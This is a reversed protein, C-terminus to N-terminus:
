CGVPVEINDIAWGWATAAPDSQLRWRIFVLDGPSLNDHLNITRKLYMSENGPTISNGNGQLGSQFAASWSAQDRSDYGTVLPTWTCGDKSAEVLCFDFFNANPWSGTGEEVLVVEDYTIVAETPDDAVTIPHRLLAIIQSNGPYPHATHLASNSFGAPQSSTFGSLVFDTTDAPQTFDTIYSNRPTTPFALVQKSATPFQRGDKWAAINVSLVRPTSVQHNITSKEPASNADFREIVKEM